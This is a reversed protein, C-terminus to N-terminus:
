STAERVLRRLEALRAQEEPTLPELEAIEKQLRKRDAPRLRLDTRSLTEERERITADKQSLAVLEEYMSAVPAWQDRLKIASVGFTSPRDALSGLDRRAQNVFREYATRQEFPKSSDALQIERFIAQRTFDAQRCDVDDPTPGQPRLMGFITTATRNALEFQYPSEWWRPAENLRAVDDIVRAIIAM